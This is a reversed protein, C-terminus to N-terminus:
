VDKNNKKKYDLFGSKGIWLDVSLLTFSMVKFFINNM